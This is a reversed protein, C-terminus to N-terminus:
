HSLHGAVACLCLCHRACLKCAHCMLCLQSSACQSRVLELCLCSASLAVWWPEDLFTAPPHSSKLWHCIAWIAMCSRIATLALHMSNCRTRCSTLHCMVGSCHSGSHRIGPFAEVTSEVRVLMKGQSSGNGQENCPQCHCCIENVQVTCTGEPIHLGSYSEAHPVTKATVM